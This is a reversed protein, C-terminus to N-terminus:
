YNEFLVLKLGRRKCKELEKLCEYMYKVENYNHDNEIEKIHMILDRIVKSLSITRRSQNYADRFVIRNEISYWYTYVENNDVVDLYNETKDIITSEELKWRFSIKGFDYGGKINFIKIPGCKKFVGVHVFLSKGM